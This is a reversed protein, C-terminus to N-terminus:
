IAIRATVRTWLATLRDQLWDSLDRIRLLRFLQVRVADIVACILYIATAALLIQPICVLARNDAFAAFRKGLIQVWVLPQTHILYIGFTLPSVFQVFRRVAPQRVQLGSFLMLLMLAAGLTTPSSYEMLYQGMKMEGLRHLTFSEIAWRVAWSVLVFGLYWAFLRKKSFSRGPEYKRVYAGLLYLTGLWVPAYGYRTAFLDRFLLTPMVSFVGILAALLRRADKRPLTHILHNLFPMFFFLAFYATFYWYQDRAVPFMSLRLLHAVTPGPRFLYYVATIVVSYFCVEFWLRILNSVRHRANLGVYGSILAYCDVACVALAHTLRVLEYKTSLPVMGGGALVGGHDTVHLVVAMWMALVRLADVGYNREKPIGSIM